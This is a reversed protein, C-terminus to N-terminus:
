NQMQNSTAASQHLLVRCSIPPATRSHHNNTINTNLQAARTHLIWCCNSQQGRLNVIRVVPHLCSSNELAAVSHRFPQRVPIVNTTAPHNNPEKKGCRRTSHLSAARRRGCTRTRTRQVRTCSDGRATVWRVLPGACTRQTHRSAPTRVTRGVASAHCNHLSGNPLPARHLITTTLQLVPLLLLLTSSTPTCSCCTVSSTRCRCHLQVSSSLLLLLLLLFMSFHDYQPHHLTVSSTSPSDASVRSSCSSMRMVRGCHDLQNRTDVVAANNDNFQKRSGMQSAPTVTTHRWELRLRVSCDDGVVMLHLSCCGVSVLLMHIIVCNIWFTDERWEVVRCMDNELSAVCRSAAHWKWERLLAAPQAADGVHTRCTKMLCDPCADDAVSLCYIKQTSWHLKSNRFFQRRTFRSNWWNMGVVHFNELKFITANKLLDSNTTTDEGVINFCKQIITNM